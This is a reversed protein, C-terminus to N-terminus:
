RWVPYSTYIGIGMLWTASSSGRCGPTAAEYNGLWTSVHLDSDGHDFSVPSPMYVVGQILEARKLQPMAEWRRLFEDRSLYDGAVLPPVKQEVTAM